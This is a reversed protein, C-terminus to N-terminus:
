AAESRLRDLTAALASVVAARSRAALGAAFPDM